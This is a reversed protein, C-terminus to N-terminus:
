SQATPNYADSELGFTWAIAERPTRCTPPVRLFYRKRSGDDEFTSNEVEVLALPEEWEDVAPLHWLTGTEDAGTPRIGSAAIIAEYGIRDALVRRVEVNPHQLALMPDLTEPAEVVERDVLVGDIAWVCAGNVYVVAPGDDNHLVGNGLHLEVPREVLLVTDELLHFHPVEAILATLTGPDMGAAMARAAKEYPYSSLPEWLRQVATAAGWPEERRPDDLLGAAIAVEFEWPPHRDPFADHGIMPHATLWQADLWLRLADPSAVWHIEPEYRGTQAYLDAVIAAASRRDVPAPWLASRAWAPGFDTLLPAFRATERRERRERLRHRAPIACAGAVAALASVAVAAFFLPRPLLDYLVFFAAILAGIGILVVIAISLLEFLRRTSSVAAGLGALAYDGARPERGESAARRKAKQRVSEGVDRGLVAVAGGLYLVALPYDGSEVASGIVRLAVVVVLWRAWSPMM